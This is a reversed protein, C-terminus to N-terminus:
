GRVSFERHMPTESINASLAKRPKEAKTIRPTPLQGYIFTKDTYVDRFREPANLKRFRQEVVLLLRWIMATANDIRKYRKAASTRLRM